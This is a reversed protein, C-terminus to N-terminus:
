SVQCSVLVTSRIAQGQSLAPRFHLGAVHSTVESTLVSDNPAPEVPDGATPAGAGVVYIHSHFQKEGPPGGPADTVRLTRQDVTGNTDVVFAV